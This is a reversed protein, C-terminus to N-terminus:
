NWIGHSRSKQPQFECRINQSLRTPVFFSRAFVELSAWSHNSFFLHIQHKLHSFSFWILNRNRSKYNVPFSHEWSLIISLQLLSAKPTVECWHWIRLHQTEFQHKKSISLICSSVSTTENDRQSTRSIEIQSPNTSTRKKGKKRRSIKSIHVSFNELRFKEAQFHNPSWSIFSCSDFSIHFTSLFPM